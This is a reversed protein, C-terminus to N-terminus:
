PRQSAVQASTAGFRRERQGFADVAADLEDPSFDPWYKTSFFLEAYAGQWLLFNSLRHEGSTRIILDVDPLDPDYLFSGFSEETVDDPDLGARIMQRAAYVLEARGGYNFALTLTLRDNRSTLEIADLVARRLDPALASLDGIHRLRAGQRNLEDTESEIAKGLLHMLGAIEDAPRRWNETSFAWLTLYEIGLEGCHRTIRRINEVGAEHGELRTLGRQTAWRGNGDMIMAVHRPVSRVGSRLGHNEHTESM